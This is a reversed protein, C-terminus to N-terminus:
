KTLIHAPHQTTAKSTLSSISPIFARLTKTGTVTISGTGGAAFAPAALALTMMVVLLIAFLKKM